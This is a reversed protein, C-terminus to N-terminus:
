INIQSYIDFMPVIVALLIIGITIALFIIMFPEILSKLQMVLSKEEEQYYNAVSTMMKGIQGTKEGTALMEYATDPFAWNNKFAISLKDGNSLNTITKNILDKYIENNTIRGLIEMSDTILVDHNILSSFTKTFTIIESYIIVRRIIPLHMLIYQISYRFGRAKHYLIIGILIISVIITIIAYLNNSMFNSINIIVKTITPLRSGVQNYMDVFNPVIYVLIFTLVCVSFIFVISPYTLASIIQKRNFDCTQYYDAMDDLAETLNGTLEATKMMNILLKPFIEGQKALAKSFSVGSNLEKVLNQYVESVRKKKTQRKLISLAEVLPIGAKIYTSLQTLFFNLDKYRMKWLSITM